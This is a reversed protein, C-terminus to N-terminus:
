ARKRRRFMSYGGCALGALAMAYTSPEPVANISISSTTAPTNDSWTSGGDSSRDTGANTWGSLNQATPVTNALNAFWSFSSSNSVANADSVVMWYTSGATLWYSTTYTYKAETPVSSSGSLTVLSSGPSGANDSFLRVTVAPNATPTGFYFQASQLLVNPASVTFGQAVLRNATGSLGIVQATGSDNGASGNPGLNGYTSLIAAHSDAHFAIIATMCMAVRACLHLLTRM